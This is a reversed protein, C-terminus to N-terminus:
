KTDQDFVKSLFKLINWLVLCNGNLLQKYITERRLTEYDEKSNKANKEAFRLTIYGM